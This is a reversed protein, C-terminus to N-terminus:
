HIGDVQRPPSTRPTPHDCQAAHRSGGTPHQGLVVDQTPGQRLAEAVMSTITRRKVGLLPRDLPLVGVIRNPLRRARTVTRRSGSEHRTCRAKAGERPVPMLSPQVGECKRTGAGALIGGPHLAPVVEGRYGGFSRPRRPLVAVMEIALSDMAEPQAVQLGESRDPAHQVVLLSLNVRQSPGASCSPSGSGHMSQCTQGIDPPFAVIVERDYRPLSLVDRMPGHTM